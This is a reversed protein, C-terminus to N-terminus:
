RHLIHGQGIRHDALGDRAYHPKRGLFDLLQVSQKLLGGQVSLPALALLEASAAEVRKRAADPDDVGVIEIQATMVSDDAEAVFGGGERVMRAANSAAAIVSPEEVAMPVLVDRGNVVFNLGIGLPLAYVGVANEVVRDATATDIGGGDLTRMDQESLDAHLRLLRRREDVPLRYFGPIRSSGNSM